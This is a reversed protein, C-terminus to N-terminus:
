KLTGNTPTLEDFVARLQSKGKRQTHCDPHHMGGEPVSCYPCCQPEPTGSLAKELIAILESNVSRHNAEARTALAGALATPLRTTMRTTM